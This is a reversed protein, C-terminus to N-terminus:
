AIDPSIIWCCLGRVIRPRRREKIINSPRYPAPFETLILVYCNPKTYDVWDAGMGTSGLRNQQDQLMREIDEELRKLKEKRGVLRREGTGKRARYTKQHGQFIEKIDKRAIHFQDEYTMCVITDGAQRIKRAQLVEGSHLYVTAAGWRKQIREPLDLFIHNKKPGKVVAIVEKSNLTANSELGICDIGNINDRQQLILKCFLDSGDAMYVTSDSHKRTYKTLIYNVQNRDVGMVAGFKEYKVLNGAKWSVRAKIVHGDKLHIEDSMAPTAVLALCCCAIFVTAIKMAHGKTIDINMCDAFPNFM